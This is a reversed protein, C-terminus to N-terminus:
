APAYAPYPPKAVNPFLSVATTAINPAQELPCARVHAPCQM